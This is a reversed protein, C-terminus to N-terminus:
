ALFVGVQSNEVQHHRGNYQRSVGASMAGSKAEGSEDLILVGGALEGRQAIAAPMLAM